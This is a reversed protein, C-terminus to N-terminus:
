ASASVLHLQERGTTPYDDLWKQFATATLPHSILYGQGVQCGLNTVADLEAQTEIGEAVIRMNLNAGLATISRFLAAPSAAPKDATLGAVFSRDIKLESVPLRQLYSLSSYGTGFDDLSLCIGLDAIDTLAAVAEEPDDMVASETIELILWEAEAGTATLAQAIHWIVAPNALNRASLNVAVTVAHGRRRWTTCETLAATVLHMTLKDILGTAEALPIFSDPSLTGLAPHHWRVLAETSVVAGTALDIKPQYHLAFQEPAHDLAVRMDAVLALREARGSDMSTEYLAVSERRTKAVYMATDACRLLNEAAVAPSIAIGISVEPTLLAEAFWVPALIRDAALQALAAADPIGGPGGPLLVAFEDGGLRAVTANDPLCQRLRQAIVILLQDGVDHGLVDNVEKFKDLDLLLVASSSNMSGLARIQASLHARNALGTLADHTAEYTLEEMLRASSVAVAFHSTLTQLMKLDDGTFTATDGLRDTVTLTGLINAGSQLPVVIADKLNMSDLWRIIATDHGHTALTPEGHHFAKSHVWDTSQPTHTDAHTLQDDEGLGLFLSTQQNPLQSDTHSDLLRLEVTSARLVHRIRALSRPALQEVTEAGVGETVFDHVVALSEHRRSTSAYSRYILIAMSVLALALLDGAMGQQILIYLAAAFVTAVLSLIVAPVLVEAIDPRTITGGHMRIVFLVLLSMLQDVAAICVLLVVIAWPNMEGTPPLWAHLLTCSVAAEFCFAATNYIVKEAAIRQWFLAALSGVLRALVLEDVPLLLIGLALPVGAFTLSHSQRRFEINVLYQEAVFFAVALAVATVPRSILQHASLASHLAGASAIAGLALSILLTRNRASLGTLTAHV